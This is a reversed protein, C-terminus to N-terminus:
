PHQRSAHLAGGCACQQPGMAAAEGKCADHQSGIHQHGSDLYSQMRQSHVFMACAFICCAWVKDLVINADALAEQLARVGSQLESARRESRAAAANRQQLEEVEEQTQPLRMPRM